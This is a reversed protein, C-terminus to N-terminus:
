QKKAALAKLDYVFLDGFGRTRPREAVARPDFGAVYLRARKADYVAQYPVIDLRHSEKL